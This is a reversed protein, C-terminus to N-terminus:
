GLKESLRSFFGNMQSQVIPKAMEAATFAGSLNAHADYNLMTGAGDPALDINAEANIGTRAVTLKM